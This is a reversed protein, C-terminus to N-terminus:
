AVLSQTSRVPPPPMPNGDAMMFQSEPPPPMPNGDAMMWLPNPPPPMPNGDARMPESTLPPPPMPNGDAVFESRAAPRHQAQIGAGVLMSALTVVAVAGNKVFRKM